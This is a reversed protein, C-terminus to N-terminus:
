DYKKICGFGDFLVMSTTSISTQLKFVEHLGRNRAERLKKPTM